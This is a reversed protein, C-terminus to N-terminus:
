QFLLLGSNSNSPVAMDALTKLIFILKSVMAKSLSPFNISQTAMLVIHLYPFLKNRPTDTLTVASLYQLFFFFCM